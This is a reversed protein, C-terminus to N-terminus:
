AGRHPSGVLTGLELLALAFLPLSPLLAAWPGLLLPWVELVLAGGLGQGAAEQLVDQTKQRGSSSSEPSMSWTSGVRGRLGAEQSHSPSPRHCRPGLAASCWREHGVGVLSLVPDLCPGLLQLLRDRRPVQSILQLGQQFVLGKLSFDLGM